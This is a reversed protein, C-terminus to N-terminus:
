FHQPEGARDTLCDLLNDHLSSPSIYISGQRGGGGEMERM